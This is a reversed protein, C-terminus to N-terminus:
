LTRYWCAVEHVVGRADSAGRPLLGCRIFGFERMLATSGTNDDFVVAALTDVGCGHGSAVLRRLLSRGIGRARYGRAVYYSVEAVRDYGPMDRLNSLAAFGAVRGDYEAVIMPRRGAAERHARMWAACDEPTRARVEANAGGAAIAENYIAAIASLDATLAERIVVLGREAQQGAAGSSGSM